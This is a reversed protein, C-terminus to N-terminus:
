IYNALAKNEMGTLPTVSRLSKVHIGVLNPWYHLLYFSNRTASAVYYFTM